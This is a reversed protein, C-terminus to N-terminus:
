TIGEQLWPLLMASEDDLGTNPVAIELLAHLTSDFWAVDTGCPPIAHVRAIYQIAHEIVEDSERQGRVYDQYSTAKALYKRALTDVVDASAGGSGSLVARAVEQCAGYLIRDAETHIGEPMSNSM